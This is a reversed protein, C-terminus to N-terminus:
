FFVPMGRSMPRSHPIIYAHLVLCYRGEFAEEDEEVGENGHTADTDDKDDNALNRFKERGLGQCVGKLNTYYM